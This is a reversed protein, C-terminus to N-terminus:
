LRSVTSSPWPRMMSILVVFDYVLRHLQASKLNLDSVLAAETWCTVPFYESCMLTSDVLPLISKLCSQPDHGEPMAEDRGLYGRSLLAHLPLGFTSTSCGSSWSFPPRPVAFPLRSPEMLALSGSRFSLLAACLFSSCSQRSWYVDARM